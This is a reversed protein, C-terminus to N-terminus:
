SANQDYPKIVMSASGPFAEKYKVTSPLSEIIYARVEPKMRYGFIISEVWDLEFKRNYFYQGPKKEFFDSDSIHRYESEYEWESLKTCLANIIKDGLDLTEDLNYMVKMVDIIPIAPINKTYEVKKTKIDEGKFEICFGHHSNAYHSWMLNSDPKSSFSIISYSDIQKEFNAVLRQLYFEGELTFKGKSTLPPINKKFSKPILKVFSKLEKPSPKLLEVKCDFLDNFNLRSSFTAMSDILNILNYDERFKENNSVSRYKYIYAPNDLEM